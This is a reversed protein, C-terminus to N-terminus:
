FSTLSKWFDFKQLPKTPWIEDIFGAWSLHPLVPLACAISLVFALLIGGNFITQGSRRPRIMPLTIGACILFLILVALRDATISPMHM